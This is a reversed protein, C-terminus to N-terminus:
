WKDWVCLQQNDNMKLSWIQAADTQRRAAPSMTLVLLKAPEEYINVIISSDSHSSEKEKGGRGAKMVGKHHKRPDAELRWSKMQRDHDREAEGDDGVDGEGNRVGQGRRESEIGRM